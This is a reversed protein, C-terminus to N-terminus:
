AEYKFITGGSWDDEIRERESTVCKANDLEECFGRGGEREVDIEGVVAFGLKAGIARGLLLGL